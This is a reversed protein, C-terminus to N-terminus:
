SAAVVMPRDSRVAGEIEKRVDQLSKMAEDYAKTADKMKGDLKKLTEAMKDVHVEVKPRKDELFYEPPLPTGRLEVFLLTPEKEEKDDKKEVTGGVAAGALLAAGGLLVLQAMTERWRILFLHM